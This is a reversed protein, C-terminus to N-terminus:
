LSIFVARRNPIDLYKDIIQLALTTKGCGPQGRILIVSGPPVSESKFEIETAKFGLMRDLEKIGTNM